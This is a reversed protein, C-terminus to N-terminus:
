HQVDDMNTEIPMVLRGYQLTKHVLNSLCVDVIRWLGNLLVNIFVLSSSARCASSQIQNVVRHAGFM